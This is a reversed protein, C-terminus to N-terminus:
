STPRSESENLSLQVCDQLAKRIRYLLQYVASETKDTQRSIKEISAEDRYRQEILERQKPPLKRLCERLAQEREVWRKERIASDMEADLMVLIDENLQAHRRHKMKRRYAFIQRLLIKRGWALFNTGSKFKGFHRWMVIKGEQLIDQADQLPQVLGTVYISFMRDHETLLRLFEETREQSHVISDPGQNEDDQM